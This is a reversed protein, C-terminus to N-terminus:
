QRLIVIKYNILPGANAFSIFFVFYRILTLLALNKVILIATLSALKKTLQAWRHQKVV